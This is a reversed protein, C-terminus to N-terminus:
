NATGSTATSSSNNSKPAIYKHIYTHWPSLKSKNGAADVAWVRWRRRVSLVRASFSTTKLGKITQTSGYTGGSRRNQIEFAYTVRTGSDDTVKTWRLTVRSTNLVAGNAPALQKPRPPRTQDTTTEASASTEDTASGDLTDSTDSAGATTTTDVPLTTQTQVVPAPAPQPKSATARGIAYGVGVGVLLLLVAGIAVTTQLRRERDYGGQRYPRRQIRGYEGRPGFDSLGVEL